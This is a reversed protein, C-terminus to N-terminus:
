TERKGQSSGYSFTKRIFTAKALQYEGQRNGGKAIFILVSELMDSSTQRLASEFPLISRQNPTFFFLLVINEQWEKTSSM